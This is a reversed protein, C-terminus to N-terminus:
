NIIGDPTLGYRSKGRVLNLDGSSPDAVLVPTPSTFEHEYDKSKGDFKKSRYVVAVLDGIKAVAGKLPTPAKMRKTKVKIPGRDEFMRVAQAAAARSAPNPRRRSTSHSARARPRDRRVIVRRAGGTRRHSIRGKPNRGRRANVLAPRAHMLSAVANWNPESRDNWQVRGMLKGGRPHVISAGHREINLV